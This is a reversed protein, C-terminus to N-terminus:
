GLFKKPSLVRTHIQMLYGGVLRASGAHAKLCPPWLRCYRATLGIAWTNLVFLRNCIDTMFCVSPM